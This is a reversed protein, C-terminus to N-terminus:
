LRCRILFPIPELEISSIVMVYGSFYQYCIRTGHTGFYAANQASTVGIDIQLRYVNREIGEDIQVYSLKATVKAAFGPIVIGLVAEVAGQCHCAQNVAVLTRRTRCILEPLLARNEAHDGRQEVVGAIDALGVVLFSVARLERQVM